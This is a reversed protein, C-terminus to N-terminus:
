EENLQYEIINKDNEVQLLIDKLIQFNESVLLYNIKENKSSKAKLYISNDLLPLQSICSLELSSSTNGESFSSTFYSKKYIKNFIFSILFLLCAVLFISFIFFILRNLSVAATIGMTIAAFYVCLELPSRVPNRFRVISLAGVMGLSLAINGSIVTTIIYTIVPLIALTATHSTTKIWRQGFLELIGRIFLSSLLLILIAVSESRINNILPQLLLLNIM